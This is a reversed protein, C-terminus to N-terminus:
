RSSKLTTTPAQRQLVKPLETSRWDFGARLQKFITYFIRHFQCEETHATDVNWFRVAALRSATKRITKSILQHEESGCGKSRM